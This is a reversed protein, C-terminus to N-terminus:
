YNFAQKYIYDDNINQLLEFEDNSFKETNSFQNEAEDVQQFRLSKNMSLLQLKKVTISDGIQEDVFGEVLYPGMSLTLPAFLEYEKPFIVAEFTGSLDELSLFKMIQGKRTRIRKSTMLWGLAKVKKGKKNKLQGAPTIQKDALNNIYFELPHRSIMYGFYEYEYKCKEAISYDRETIIKLRKLTKKIKPINEPNTLDFEDEFLNYTQSETLKKHHFEVDLLRMLTPRTFNFCDLAGIKILLAADEYGINTRNIFGSLSKFMGNNERDSLISKMANSSLNKIAMFGIRIWDKEGTYEIQSDNISPLFIKLGLRKSEQLYVAPSYFGGQNSLVSSMFEAPYHTKLYANQFSLLAFSASHAKCFAYGAFSEIQRWLETTAEVSYKKLCHDFFKEKLSIMAQHSRMKGSMARRLLDAEALSLGAIYHAVKIVDEQYIMVGYTESLISELEPVLYKRKSPNKHREIFEQMMGSESVGPRIISSIATLMEFSDSNMKKLLSRMGPSEIYFCGITQGTRIIRKTEEDDFLMQYDYIDFGTEAFGNRIKPYFQFIENQNFKISTM